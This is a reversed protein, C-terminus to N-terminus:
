VLDGGREKWYRRAQSYLTQGQELESTENVLGQEVLQDLMINVTSFRELYMMFDEHDMNWLTELEVQLLDELLGINDGSLKFEVKKM